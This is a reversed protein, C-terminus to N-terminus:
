ICELRERLHQPRAATACVAELCVQAQHSHGYLACVIGRFLCSLRSGYYSNWDIDYYYISRYVEGKTTPRHNRSPIMQSRAYRVVRTIAAVINSWM